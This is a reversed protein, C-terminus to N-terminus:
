DGADCDLGTMIPPPGRPSLGKTGILSMLRGEGDTELGAVGEILPLGELGKIVVLAAAGDGVGAGVGGLLLRLREGLGVIALSTLAEGAGLM